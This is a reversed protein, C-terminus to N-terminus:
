TAVFLGSVQLPVDVSRPTGLVRAFVAQRVPSPRADDVGAVRRVNVAATDCLLFRMYM